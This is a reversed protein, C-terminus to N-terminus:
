HSTSSVSCVVRAAVLVPASRSLQIASKENELNGAATALPITVNELYEPDMSANTGAPVTTLVCSPEILKVTAASDVFEAHCCAEFEYESGAPTIDISKGTTAV